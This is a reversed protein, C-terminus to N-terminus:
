SAKGRKVGKKEAHAEEYNKKEGKREEHLDYRIKTL